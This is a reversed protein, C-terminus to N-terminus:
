TILTEKARQAVAHDLRGAPPLNYRMFIEINANGAGAEIPEGDSARMLMDVTMTVQDVPSQAIVADMDGEALYRRSTPTLDYGVFVPRPDLAVADIAKVVARTNGGTSLVGAVNDTTALVEQVQEAVEDLSGEPFRCEVIPFQPYSDAFVAHFGVVRRRHDDVQLRPMVIVVSGSRGALMRGLLDAGARGAAVNDVGAFGIRRSAPQDSVLTVVPVGSATIDDVAEVIAPESPALMAIGDVHQSAIRLENALAKVKTQDFHVVEISVGSAALEAAQDRVIDALMQVFLAKVDPLFVRFRRRGRRNLRIANVNRKYNLSNAADRVRKETAPRAGRGNLVRDVTALSVGASRAIDRMTVSM